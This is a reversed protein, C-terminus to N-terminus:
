SIEIKTGATLDLHEKASGEKASIELTGCSGTILFLGEKAEHYTKVFPLKFSEKGFKITYTKKKLPELNTIINGFYDVRTVIGKRAKKFLDLKQIKQAHTGLKSFAGIDILAAARSFVDRGHFTNSADEPITLHRIEVDKQDKLAEWLLGNDPAVFYYEHTRIALAKRDSGVGPDVVCCFITGHPFHKVNQALIWSAETISHPTITHCLDVVTSNVDHQHIVGKMIGVYESDGFDSLLVIM